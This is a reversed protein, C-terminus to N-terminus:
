ALEKKIALWEPITCSGMRATFPDPDQWDDVQSVPLWVEGGDATKVLVAAETTRVVESFQVEFPERDTSSV